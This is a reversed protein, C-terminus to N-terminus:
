FPSISSHLMSYGGEGLIIMRDYEQRADHDMDSLINQASLSVSSLIFFFLLFFAGAEPFPSYLLIRGRRFNLLWEKVADDFSESEYEDIFQVAVPLIYIPLALRQLLERHVDLRVADKETTLIIRQRDESMNKFYLEINGIDFNSFAHHDHYELMKVEGCQSDVYEMLYETGAIA